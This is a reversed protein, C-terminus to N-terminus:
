HDTVANSSWSKKKFLKKAYVRYIKTNWFIPYNGKESKIDWFEIGECIFHVKGYIFNTWENNLDFTHWIRDSITLIITIIVMKM